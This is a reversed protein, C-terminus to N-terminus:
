ATVDIPNKVVRYIQKFALRYVDYKKGIVYFVMYRDSDIEKITLTDYKGGKETKIDFREFHNDLSKVIQNVLEESFAAAIKQKNRLAYRM